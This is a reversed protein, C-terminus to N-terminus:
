PENVVPQKVIGLGRLLFWTGPITFFYLLMKTATVTASLDENKPFEMTAATYLYFGALLAVLFWAIRIGAMSAAGLVLLVVGFAASVMANTSIGVAVLILAPVIVFLGFFRDTKSHRDKIVLSPM